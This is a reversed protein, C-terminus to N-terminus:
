ILNHKAKAFGIKKRGLDFHTYFNKMFSDGLIFTGSFQAPLRSGQFGIECYTSSDQKIIYQDGKLNYANGGIIFTVTPFDIAQNCNFSQPVSSLIEKIMDNPGIIGSTGSDVIASFHANKPKISKGNVLIDDM